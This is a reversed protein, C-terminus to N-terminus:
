DREGRWRKTRCLYLDSSGFCPLTRMALVEEEADAALARPGAACAEAWAAEMHRAKAREEGAVWAEVRSRRRLAADGGDHTAAAPPQQRLRERAAQLDRASLEAQAWLQQLVHQMRKALVRHEHELRAEWVERAGPASGLRRALPECFAGSRKHLQLSCCAGHPWACPCHAMSARGSGAPELCLFLRSARSAHPLDHVVACKGGAEGWGAEAACRALRQTEAPGKPYFQGVFSAGPSLCARLATLLAVLQSELEESCLWQLASISFAGDLVPQRRFPLGDRMDWCVAECRPSAAALMSPSIDLGVVRHGCRQAVETSAGAGCGVDVLLQPPLVDGGSGAGQLSHLLHLARETLERQIGTREAASSYRSTEVADYFEAERSCEEPRGRADRPRGAM